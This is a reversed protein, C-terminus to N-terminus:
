KNVGNKLANGGIAPDPAQADFADFRINIGIGGPDTDLYCGESSFARSGHPFRSQRAMIEFPRQRMRFLIRQAAMKAENLTARIQRHYLLVDTTRV